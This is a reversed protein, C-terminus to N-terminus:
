QAVWNEAVWSLFAAGFFSPTATKTWSVIGGVVPLSTSSLSKVAGWLIALFVVIKTIGWAIRFAWSAILYLMSITVTAAEKM